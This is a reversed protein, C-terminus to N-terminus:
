EFHGKQVAIHLPLLGSKTARNVDAKHSLLLEVVEKHGNKSAEYLPTAGDCAQCNMDVGVICLLITLIFVINFYQFLPLM